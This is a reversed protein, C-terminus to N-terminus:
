AGFATKVQTILKIVLGIGLGAVLSVGGVKIWRAIDGKGMANTVEEGVATIVGAGVMTILISNM